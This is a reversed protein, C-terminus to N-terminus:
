QGSESNEKARIARDRNEYIMEYYHPSISIAADFDTIALDYEDKALYALGRNHYGTWDNPDISIAVTNGMIALDYDGSKHHQAVQRIILNKYVM